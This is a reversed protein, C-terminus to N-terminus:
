YRDRGPPVPSRLALRPTVASLAAECGLLRGVAVKWEDTSATVCRDLAEFLEVAGM